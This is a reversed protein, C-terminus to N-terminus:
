GRFKDHNNAMRLASIIILYTSLQWPLKAKYRYEMGDWWFTNNLECGVGAADTDITEVGCMNIYFITLIYQFYHSTINISVKRLIVYKIINM